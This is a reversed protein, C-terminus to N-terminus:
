RIGKWEKLMLIMRLRGIYSNNYSLKEDDTISTITHTHQM